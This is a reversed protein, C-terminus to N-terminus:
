DLTQFIHLEETPLNKEDVVATNRQNEDSYFM